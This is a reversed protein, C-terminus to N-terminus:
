NGLLCSVIEEASPRIFSVNTRLQSDEESSDSEDADGGAVLMAKVVASSLRDFDTRLWPPRQNAAQTLRPWVGTERKVLVINM